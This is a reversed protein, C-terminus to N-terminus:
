LIWFSQTSPSFCSAAGEWALGLLAVAWVHHAWSSGDISGHCLEWWLRNESSRAGLCALSGLLCLPLPGSHGEQSVSRLMQFVHPLTALCSELTDDLGEANVM